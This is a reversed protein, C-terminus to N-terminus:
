FGRFHVRLVRFNKPWSNVRFNTSNTALDRGHWTSGGTEPRIRLLCHCPIKPLSLLVPRAFMSCAGSLALPLQEGLDPFGPICLRTADEPDRVLGPARNSRERM